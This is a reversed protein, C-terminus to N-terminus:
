IFLKQDTSGEFIIKAPGTLSLNKVKQNEVEFNVILNDGGYTILNIPPKLNDTVYCILAAAVSGTGCALTEDEVGREYTRIHIVENKVDIFNVNTGAPNFDSSYRIEKGIKFVPVDLINEFSSKPNLHDKFIDKINIVVHPSGTDAFNSTVMQNAAKIKFNYKIQKPPNLNFKILEDSLVEGSYEADNSVFKAIGNKLRGTKEAFWISCRAGNGCLSGTSGDANYYVMKYNHEATDEITILGDAGIGNRRNCLNKIKESTLILGANQNKDVLIFDNGAGSMKKFFIKQM